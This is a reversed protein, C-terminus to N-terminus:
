CKYTGGRLTGPAQKMEKYPIIRAHCKYNNRDPFHFGQVYEAIHRPSCTVKSIWPIHGQIISIRCITGSISSGEEHFSLKKWLYHKGKAFHIKICYYKYVACPVWFGECRDSTGTCFKKSKLHACLSIFPFAESHHPDLSIFCFPIKITQIQMHFNIEKEPIAIEWRM